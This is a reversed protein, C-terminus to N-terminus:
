TSMLWRAALLVIANYTAHTAIPTLILGTKRFGVAAAVGLLFVPAISLPPHIIAFIAASGLVALMPRGMRELGRFLLGRFIFEEVLPAAGVALIALLWYDAANAPLFLSNEAHQYLAPFQSCVALYAIGAAGCLVGLGLGKAVAAAASWGGGEASRLGVTRAFDPVKRLIIMAGGSVLIGALIYSLSISGPADNGGLLMVILLIGQVAFFAFAAVLGHAVSLQPPPKTMPDLLYSIRDRVLQWIAVAVLLFLIAWVLQSFWDRSYLAGAYLSALIMCLYSGTSRISPKEPGQPASYNLISIGCDIFAFTGVGVVALVCSFAADPSLSGSSGVRYALLVTAFLSGLCAWIVVKRILVWELGRPFTYLMWLSRGESALVQAGGNLVMYCGLVYALVATNRIDGWASNVLQPQLFVQLAVFVVPMIITTALLNRDRMLLRAERGLVGRLLPAAHRVPAPSSNRESPAASKAILGRRVMREAVWTAALSTAVATAILGGAGVAAVVTPGALTLPLNTPLWEVWSPWVSARAALVSLYEMFSPNNMGIMLGFLSVTTLITCLAQINRLQGTSLHRRMWTEGIMCFAGALCSLYLTCVAAPLLSWLGYGSSALVTAMLPFVTFWAMFNLLSGQLVDALFIERARVPFTFYWETSWHVATLDRGHVSFGFLVLLILLVSLTASLAPLLATQGAVDPWLDRSPWFGHAKKPYFGDLGYAQYHVRLREYIQEQDGRQEVAKFISEMRLAVEVTDLTESSPNRARLVADVKAQVEPPLSNAEYWELSQYASSSIGIQGPHCTAAVLGELFRSSASVAMLLLVGYIFLSLLRWFSRRPATAQRKGTRKRRAHWRILLRNLNRRASIRLISGVAALNGPRGTV